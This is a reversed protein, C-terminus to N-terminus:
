PAKERSYTVSEDLIRLYLGFEGGGNEVKVLFRNWGKKVAVVGFHAFPNAGHRRNDEYTLEGNVFLRCGDDTGLTYRVQRDTPSHLWTQAYAISNEGANPEPGIQHM